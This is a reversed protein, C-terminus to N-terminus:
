RRRNVVEVGLSPRRVDAVMARLASEAVFGYILHSILGRTHTQWPYHQPSAAFGLVPNTVQDEVIEMALGFGLGYGATVAPVRDRLLAYAMVPAIGIAYHVLHGAIHDQPIPNGRLAESTRSAVVHAPDKHEPRVAWTRDHAEDPELGYLFWDVRDLVFTAVAGAVLGKIM